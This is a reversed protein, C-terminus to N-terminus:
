WYQQLQMRTTMMMHPHTPDGSKNIGWCWLTIGEKRLKVLLSDRLEEILPHVEGWALVVDCNTCRIADIIAKHNDHSNPKEIKSIDQIKESIWDCINAKTYRMYGHLKAWSYEKRITPYDINDASPCANMGIVFLTPAQGEIYTYIGPKTWDRHLFRRRTTLNGERIFLSSGKVGEMLKFGSM